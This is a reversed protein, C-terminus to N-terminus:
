HCLVLTSVTNVYLKFCVNVFVLFSLFVQLFFFEFALVCVNTDVGVQLGWLWWPKDSLLM